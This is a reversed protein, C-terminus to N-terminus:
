VLSAGVSFTFSPTTGTITWRVRWNRTVIANASVNAAVPLGPGVHLVTTGTATLVASALLTFYKGSTPDLGEIFVTLQPTTGSVVTVDIVAQVCGTAALDGNVMDAGNGATTRAASPVAAKDVIM